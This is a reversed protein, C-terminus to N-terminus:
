FLVKGNHSLTFQDMTVGAGLPFYKKDFWVGEEQCCEGVLEQWIFGRVSGYIKAKYPQGSHTIEGVSKGDPNKKIAVLLQGSDNFIELWYDEEGADREAHPVFLGKIRELLSKM